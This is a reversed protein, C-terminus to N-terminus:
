ESHLHTDSEESSKKCYEEINRVNSSQSGSRISQDLSSPMVAVTDAILNSPVTSADENAEDNENKLDQLEDNSIDSDCELEFDPETDSESEYMSDEEHLYGLFRYFEFVSWYYVVRGCIAVRTAFEVPRITRRCYGVFMESLKVLLISFLWTVAAQVALRSWYDHDPPCFDFLIQASCLLTSFVMTLPWRSTIQFLFVITVFFIIQMRDDKSTLDFRLLNSLDIDDM